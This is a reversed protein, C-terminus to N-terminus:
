ASAGPADRQDQGPPKNGATSKHMRREARRDRELICAGAVWGNLTRAAWRLYDDPLQDFRKGRHRGFPMLEGSGSLRRPTDDFKAEEKLARRVVTRRKEPEWKDKPMQQGKNFHFSYREESVVRTRASTGRQRLNKEPVASASWADACSRAAPEDSQHQRGCSVRRRVSACRFDAQEFLQFHIRSITDVAAGASRSLPSALGAEGALPVAETSTPSSLFQSRASGYRIIAATPVLDLRHCERVM